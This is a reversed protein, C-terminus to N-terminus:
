LNQKLKEYTEKLSEPLVKTQGIIPIFNTDGKWRPVIHIHLHKAVGAGAVKGLNVGINFGDPKLARKIAATSKKILEILEKSESSNLEAFDSLHRYPAIMLHGTNYPFTNLLIFCTKGRYLLGSRFDNKKKATQCFLCKTGGHRSVYEKRWPAFIVDM